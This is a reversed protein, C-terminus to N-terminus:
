RGGGSRPIRVVVYARPNPPKKTGAIRTPSRPLHVHGSILPNIVSTAQSMLSRASRETLEKVPPQAKAIQEPTASAVLDCTENINFTECDKSVVKALRSNAYVLMYKRAQETSLDYSNRL